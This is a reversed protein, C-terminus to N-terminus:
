EVWEKLYQESNEMSLGKIGAHQCISGLIVHQEELASVEQIGNTSAETGVYSM